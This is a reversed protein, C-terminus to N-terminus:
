DANPEVPPKPGKKLEHEEYHHIRHCNACLAICQKIEEHALKFRGKTILENISYKKLGVHHFDIVAPHSFGCKTCSLGRKFELWQQKKQKRTKKTKAQVGTKNKQYHIASYAKHKAKRVEPDKYPM